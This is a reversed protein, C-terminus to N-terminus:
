VDRNKDKDIFKVAGGFVKEREEIGEKETKTSPDRKPPLLGLDIGAEKAYRKIKETFIAGRSKRISSDSYDQKTESLARYIMDQPCLKAIKVYFSRSKEDRLLNLMDEVLAQIKYDELERNQKLKQKTKIFIINQSKGDSSKEYYYKELLPFKKDILGKLAKNLTKKIDSPYKSYVPLQEALKFIDRKHFLQRKLMKTLYLALRQETPATLRRFFESDITLINGNKVAEHFIDSAKIYAFPLSQQIMGEQAKIERDYLSLEEFLHFTKSIYAQAEKDWFANKAQITIGVLSNLDKEIRKYDRKSDRAGMRKLLNYRSGIPITKSELNNEKWVQMLEFLTRLASGTPLAWKAAATVVWDRQKREGNKGVIWDSYEITKKNSPIRKSLVAIPFEALNMEYKATRKQNQNNIKM